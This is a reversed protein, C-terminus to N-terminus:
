RRSELLKRFRLADEYMTVNNFLVYAGDPTLDRLRALEVDSYQHRYDRGGHLRFYAPKGYAPKSELPDVCHVLNLDQCLTLIVDQSWKGRPEWVFVFDGRDIHAFFRKMNEINEASATFSPPCQFVIVRARLTRAITRTQLWADFVEQSPKFFGYNSERGAPIHLAAKRYTPSSPLHTIEQWAKITFEFDEPVEDRWRQATATLPPKYFTQQIEVLKFQQWYEKKGRAFGCCGIKIRSM